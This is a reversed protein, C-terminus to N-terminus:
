WVTELIFPVRDVEANLLFPLFRGSQNTRERPVAFVKRSSNRTRLSRRFGELEFKANALFPSFRGARIERERPVAFSKRIPKKTRSSRCTTELTVETNSVFSPVSGAEDPALSAANLPPETTPREGRLRRAFAVKPPLHDWMIRALDERRPDPKPAFASLLGDLLEARRVLSTVLPASATRVTEANASPPPTRERLWQRLKVEDTKLQAIAGEITEHHRFEEQVSREIWVGTSARAKPTDLVYRQGAERFFAGVEEVTFLPPGSTQLYTFVEYGREEMAKRVEMAAARDPATFSLFVRQGPSAAAWAKRM